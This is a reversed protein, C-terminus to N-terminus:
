FPILPASQTVLRAIKDSKDSGSGIKSWRRSTKKSSSSPTQVRALEFSSTGDMSENEQVFHTAAATSAVESRNQHLVAGTQSHNQM